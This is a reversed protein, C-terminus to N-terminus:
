QLRILTKGARWVGDLNYLTRQEQSFLHVVLDGFDLVVWGSEAGGERHRMQGGVKALGSELERTLTNLSRRNSASMIVMFDTLDSIESVDVLSINEAQKDSAIDIACHAIEIASLKSTSSKAQSHHEAMMNMM